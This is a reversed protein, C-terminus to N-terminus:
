NSQDDALENKIKELIIMFNEKNKEGNAIIDEIAKIKRAFITARLEANDSKTKLYTNENILESDDEIGFFYVYIFAIIVGIILGACFKM